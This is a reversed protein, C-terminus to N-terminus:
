FVELFQEVTPPMGTLSVAALRLQRDIIQEKLVYLEVAFKMQRLKKPTIAALGGGQQSTRRYKVESFYITNDKTSVIDIECFKTKWNRDLIEHGTDILYKVAVDEAGDGIEKTTKGALSLGRYDAKQPTTDKKAYKSLPAISLRHLPTIGYQEIAQIHAVTGYGVHRAFGYHPYITDQESMYNDRAVKAIISAASVAPVLLDAKKMVTVYKGKNTDKLFNVTGDIIIEHFPTKIQEVARKTALVLSASLGIEDIEHAAVWGLGVGKAEERIM